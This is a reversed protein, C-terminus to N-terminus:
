DGFQDLIVFNIKLFLNENDFDYSFLMKMIQQFDEELIYAISALKDLAWNWAYFLSVSPFFHCFVSRIYGVWCFIIHLFM